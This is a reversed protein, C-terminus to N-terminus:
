SVPRLEILSVGPMPLSFTLEARGAAAHITRVPEFGDLRDLEALSAWGREDPWDVIGLEEASGRINSHTADIRRHRLEYEAATLREIRVIVDRELLPDGEAKGQDLTGNWVLVAIRGDTHRTAWADVLGGAGDGSVHCAVLEDHLMELMRLAWFRPKRLNGVTLLGFGGHFLSQPRGLEEFHDSLVWYAVAEARGQASKMSHCIFPAGFVGDNVAAFHTPTVGWETWWIPLDSRGHSAATARVDLPANGYTHTSLYDLPAGSAAVHELTAGIWGAAATAPGGVRLGPDVSKVARASVDYLRLYEEPSGSWFVELNPENWVEFAWHDRVEDPGYRDVLHSTLDRVLGEWRAWDRPPSVIAGYGFVTRSPDTALDHPMFSLEVIPRLGLAVVRDYIADIRRFDHVPEGASERYVGLEDHFIAHARVARVGLEERAITLATAFEEGV